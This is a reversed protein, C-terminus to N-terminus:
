ALISLSLSPSVKMKTKTKLLKEAPVVKLAMRTDTDGDLVEYCKAFGGRGLFRLKHYQMVRGGSTETLV